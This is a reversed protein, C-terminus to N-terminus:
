LSVSQPRRVRRLAEAFQAHMRPLGYRVRVDAAGRRALTHAWTPRAMFTRLAEALADADGPPVLVGTQQTHIIEPVGGADTAVMPREALLGEVVVRGFPEPLISTHAIIDCAQMYAPVNSQHGAFHIRGQLAPAQATEHLTEAYAADGPFAAEGVLLAHAQPVQTLAKLLVHQGKWHALRSFVGVLPVEPPIDYRIRVQAAEYAAESKFPLPCIGNPIELVPRTGGGKVFAEATARSNVGVLTAARNATLTVLRRQLRGFHEPTLLDHVIWILPCGTQRAAYAAPLLAKMSNAVIVDVDNTRAVRALSRATRWLAPVVQLGQVWSGNKRVQQLVAGESLVLHPVAHTELAETFRGTDFTVVTSHSAHPRVLDLLFLEAGGLAGSHTVFLIRPTTM